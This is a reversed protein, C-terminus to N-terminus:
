SPTRLRREIATQDFLAATSTRLLVVLSFVGLITGFPFSLCTIAAMVICFTRHRLRRLCYGVYVYLGALGLIVLLGCAGISAIFWGIGPPPPTGQGDEMMQPNTAMAVGMVIYLSMCCGFLSSLGAWVYYFVALLKLQERDNAPNGIPDPQTLSPHSQSM